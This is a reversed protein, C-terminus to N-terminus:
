YLCIQFLFISKVNDFRRNSYRDYIVQYKNEMAEYMPKVDDTYKVKIDRDTTTKFGRQYVTLVNNWQIAKDITIYFAQALAKCQQYTKINGAGCQKRADYNDM